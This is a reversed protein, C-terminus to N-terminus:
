SRSLPQWGGGLAKYLQVHATVQNARTTVLQEELSLLTRQAELVVLLDVLGATYQQSALDEAQRAAAIARRLTVIRSASEQIAILANEVEVLATLISRDYAILAQEETESAIRINQRIRGADFIPASLSGLLSAATSEPSPLRGAKLAEVGISGSLNLSPLRELAAARRRAVAAIFGAEAARIDPRQRLTDAPIGIALRGPTEPLDRSRALRADLRGPPEGCLLALDNGSQRITQRLTPLTGRAQELTSTAQQADLESGEGAEARWRTLQVTEERAKLNKEVIAMQQQASRLTVYTQAVEAALSVQTAYFNEVSQDYDAGAARRRQYQKGFLDIEWSADLAANYRESESVVGQNKSRDTRGSVSGGISPFFAATELSRRARAEAIRSRATRIDFNNVLARTILEDLVPDGMRRWWHALTEADAPAGRAAKWSEPVAVHSRDGPSITGCAPLFLASLLFPWCFRFSAARMPVQSQDM